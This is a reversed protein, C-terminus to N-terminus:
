FQTCTQPDLALQKPRTEETRRQLMRKLHGIAKLRQFTTPQILIGSLTKLRSLAVFTYGAAMEKSGIDIVVKTMTQGQTLPLQQRSLTKFGNHWEHTIPSMPISKPKNQIFPLGRYDPFNVMIAIPLHPLKHGQCYLLSDITGTTGNCLGVQHWLNSTLMVKAGKAMSVVPELGGADDSKASAAAACSHIANIRAIPKGLKTVM